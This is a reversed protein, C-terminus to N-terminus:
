ALVEDVSAPLVHQETLYDTIQTSLEKLTESSVSLGDELWINIIDAIDTQISELTKM